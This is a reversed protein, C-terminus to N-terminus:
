IRIRYYVVQGCDYPCQAFHHVVEHCAGWKSLIMPVNMESIRLVVGSHEVDGDKYYVAIDGPMVEDVQEYDDDELIKRIEEPRDIWTRRSAFTLGHCNFKRSPGVPRHQGLPYQREFDRTALADGFRVPERNIENIVQNECRTDLRLESRPLLIRQPVGMAPCIGCRPPEVGRPTAPHRNPRTDPQVQSADDAESKSSGRSEGLLATGLFLEKQRYRIPEIRPANASM